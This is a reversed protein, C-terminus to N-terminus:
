RGKVDGSWLVGDRPDAATLASVVQTVAGRTPSAGTSGIGWVIPSDASRFM